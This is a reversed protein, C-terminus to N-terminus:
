FLIGSLAPCNEATAPGIDVIMPSFGEISSMAADQLPLPLPMGGSDVKIHLDLDKENLSIGGSNDVGKTLSPAAGRLTGMEVAVNKQAFDAGEQNVDVVSVKAAVQKKRGGFAESVGSLLAVPAVMVFWVLAGAVYVPVDKKEQIDNRFFKVLAKVDEKFLNLSVRASVGQIPYTGPSAFLFTLIVPLLALLTWNWCIVIALVFVALSIFGPVMTPPAFTRLMDDIRQHGLFFGRGTEMYNAVGRMGALVAFMEIIFLAMFLPVIIILGFPVGKTAAIFGEESVRQLYGSFAISLGLLVGGALAYISAPLAGVFGSVGLIMVVIEYAVLGTLIPFKSLYFGIGGYHEGMVQGPSLHRNDWHVFRGMAQQTAGVVIKILFMMWSILSVERGKAGTIYERFISKKGRMLQFRGGIVDESLHSTSSLGGFIKVFSSRWVDPHGFNHKIGLLAKRRMDASTFTHESSEFAEGTLSFDGTFIDEPYGVFGVAPDKFEQLLVPIKIAQEPYFDQNMDMGFVVEGTAFGRAHTHNGAKGNGIIPSDETLPIDYVDRMRAEPGVSSLVKHYGDDEKKLWAIEISFGLEESYKRLLFETDAKKLNGVADTPDAELLDGWIQYGWLMQFKKGVEAHLREEKGDNVVWEPHSIRALVELMRAYNMMGDLTRAFPQGRYSAWLRLQMKLGDSIDGLKGTANTLAKLRVLEGSSARNEREMREIFSLWSVRYRTIMYNLNTFGTNEEKELATPMNGLDEYPYIVDERFMPIMITATKIEEWRPMVPMDMFLQNVFTVVRKQVREQTFSDWTGNRAAELESDSLEDRSRMQMFVTDLIMTRAEHRQQSNLGIGEPLLAADIADSLINDKQVLRIDKGTRIAGIGLRKGHIFSYIGELLQFVSFGGTYSLLMVLFWMGVLLLPNINILIVYHFFPIVPYTVAGLMELTPISVFFFTLYDIVFKVSVFLAWFSVRAVKEHTTLVPDDHGEWPPVEEGFAKKNLSRGLVMNLMVNGVWLSLSVAIATLVAVPWSVLGQVVGVMLVASLAQMTIFSFPRYQNRLIQMGSKLLGQWLRDGPETITDDFTKKILPKGKIRRMVEARTLRDVSFTDSLLYGGSQLQKFFDVYEGYERLTAAKEKLRLQDFGGTTAFMKLANVLAGSKRGLREMLEFYVAQRVDPREDFSYGLQDYWEVFEKIRFLGNLDDQRFVYQYPVVGGASGKLLSAPQIQMMRHWRTYEKRVFGGLGDDKGNGRAKTATYFIYNVVDPMDNVLIDGGSLILHLMWLDEVSPLFLSNDKMVVKRWVSYGDFYESLIDKMEDGRELRSTVSGEFVRKANATVNENFGYNNWSPIDSYNVRSVDAPVKEEIRRIREPFGKAQSQVRRKGMLLGSVIMGTFVTVFGAVERWHALFDSGIEQWFGITYQREPLGGESVHESIKHVQPATPEADLWAGRTQQEGDKHTFIQSLIVSAIRRGDESIVVLPSSFATEPDFVTQQIGKIQSGVIGNALRHLVHGAWEVRVKGGASVEHVTSVFNKDSRYYYNVAAGKGGGPTGDPINQVATHDYVSVWEFDKGASFKINGPYIGVPARKGEQGWLEVFIDGSSSIRMLDLKRGFDPLLYRFTSAGKSSSYYVSGSNFDRVRRIIVGMIDQREAESEASEYRQVLARIDPEILRYRESDPYKTELMFPIEEVKVPVYGPSVGLAAMETWWDVPADAKALFRNYQATVGASVLDAVTRDNPQVVSMSKVQFDPTMTYSVVAEGTRVDIDLAVRFEVIGNDDAVVSFVIGRGADGRVRYDTTVVGQTNIVSTGEFITDASIGRRQFALEVSKNGTLGQIWEKYALPSVVKVTAGRVWGMNSFYDVTAGGGHDSFYVTRTRFVSLKKAWQLIGDATMPSLIRVFGRQISVPVGNSMEIKEVPMNWDKHRADRLDVHYEAGADFGYIRVIHPVSKIGAGTGVLLTLGADKRSNNATAYVERGNEFFVTEGERERVSYLKVSQGNKELRYVDEVVAKVDVGSVTEAVIHVLGEADTFSRGHRSLQTSHGPTFASLKFFLSQSGYINEVISENIDRNLFIRGVVHNGDDRWEVARAFARVQEHIVPDKLQEVGIFFSDNSKKGLVLVHGAKFEPISAVPVMQVGGTWVKFGRAIVNGDVDMEVMDRVNKLDGAMIVRAGGDNEVRFDAIGTIKSALVRAIVEKLAQYAPKPKGDSAVLGWLRERNPQPNNPLLIKSPNDKYSMFAVSWGQYIINGIEQAQLHEGLTPNVGAEALFVFKSSPPIDGALTEDRRYCNIGVGNINKMAFAKGFHEPKDAVVTTMVLLPRVRPDIKELIIGARADVFDFMENVAESLEGPKGTVLTVNGPMNWENGLEVVVEVGKKKMAPIFENLYAIVRDMHELSIRENGFPVPRGWYSRLNESDYAKDSLPISVSIKRVLTDDVMESAFVTPMLYYSRVFNVRTERLREFDAESFNQAELTLGILQEDNPGRLLPARLGAVGFVGGGGIVHRALRQEDIRRDEGLLPLRDRSVWQSVDLGKAGAWHVLINRKLFEQRASPLVVGYQDKKLVTVAPSLLAGAGASAGFAPFAQLLGLFLTLALYRTDVGNKVANGTTIDRLPTVLNVNAVQLESTQGMWRKVQDISVNTNIMASDISVMGGSFYKRPLVEKTLVDQEEKIYNFVGMKYAELYQAYIREKLQPDNVKIGTVKGTDAYVQGLLSDKLTKKFWTALIMAQYIQRVQSFNEGENVEKEIVPIVVDRVIDCALKRREDKSNDLSSLGTGFQTRNAQIAMFDEELMVKLHSNVLLATDNKQYIDAKDAMIWVKNFTDVPVDTTGYKAYAKEYVRKWFDKGVQDEPYMLSATFQKLLYDQSLLDRGMETNAVSDVIIRNSENPSLNVWIDNNPIALAAMFYKILRNYVDKTAFADMQKQGNSLIFHLNFPNKLNVRLGTMVPSAYQGSIRVMQGPPPLPRAVQAYGSSAPITVVYAIIVTIAIVRFVWSHFCFQLM